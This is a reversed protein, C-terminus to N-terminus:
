FFTNALRSQPGSVCWCSILDKETRRSGAVFSPGLLSGSEAISAELEIKM